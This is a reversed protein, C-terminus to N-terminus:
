IEYGQGPLISKVLIYTQARVARVFSNSHKLPEFVGFTGFNDPLGVPCAIGWFLSTRTFIVIDCGNQLFPTKLFFQGSQINM